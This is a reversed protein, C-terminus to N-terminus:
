NVSAFLPCQKFIYIVWIIINKRKESNEKETKVRSYKM